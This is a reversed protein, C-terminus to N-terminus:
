EDVVLHRVDGLWSFSLCPTVDKGTTKLWSCGRHCKVKSRRHASSREAESHADGRAKVDNLWVTCDWHLRAYVSHLVAGTIITSRNLLLTWFWCWVHLLPAVHGWTDRSSFGGWLWLHFASITSVAEKLGSGHIVLLWSLTSIFFLIFLTFAAARWPASSEACRRWRLINKM